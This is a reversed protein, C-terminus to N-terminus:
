IVVKLTDDILYLRIPNEEGLGTYAGGRTVHLAGQADGRFEVCTKGEPSLTESIVGESGVAPHGACAGNWDPDVGWVRVRTGPAGLLSPTVRSLVYPARSEHADPLGSLRWYSALREEITESPTPM